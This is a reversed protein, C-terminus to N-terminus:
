THLQQHRYRILSEVAKEPTWEESEAKADNTTGSEKQHYNRPVKTKSPRPSMKKHDNKEAQDPNKPILPPHHSRTRGNGGSHRPTDHDCPPGSNQAQMAQLSREHEKKTSGGSEFLEARRPKKPPEGKATERNCSKSPRKRKNTAPAGCGLQHHNPQRVFPPDNYRPEQARDM